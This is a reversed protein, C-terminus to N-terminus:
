ENAKRGVAEDKTRDPSRCLRRGVRWGLLYHGNKYRRSRGCSGDLHGKRWRHMARSAKSLDYRRCVIIPCAAVHLLDDTTCCYECVIHLQRSM